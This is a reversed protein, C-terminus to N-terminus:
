LTGGHRRATFVHAQMTGDLADSGFRKAVEAAAADTVSQLGDPRRAEIEGRLPSGQCFGIAPDRPSPARCPLTVTEVSVDTFGAQGLAARIAAVDHYGHPTRAIFGPPDAPFQAAVGEHVARAVPNHALSDWANFLFRGGPKLVRRAERYGAVKDPFFMVGFQCVVVDFAGDGFPLQTADAQRMKVRELGPKPRAFDIMAQNLDTATLEVSAPLMMALAQTVLGTGAATELLAGAALDSLRKALDAAYPTFLMPGLHRDYLAPISGAFVTDGTTMSIEGGAKEIEVIRQGRQM